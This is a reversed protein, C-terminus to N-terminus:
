RQSTPRTLLSIPKVLWKSSDSQVEPEALTQQSVRDQM